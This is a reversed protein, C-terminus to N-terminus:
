PRSESNLAGHVVGIGGSSRGSGSQRLSRQALEARALDRLEGDDIAIPVIRPDHELGDVDVDEFATPPSAFRPDPHAPVRM